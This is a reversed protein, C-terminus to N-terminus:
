NLSHPGGHKIDRVLRQWNEHEGQENEDQLESKNSVVCDNVLPGEANEQRSTDFVVENQIAEPNDLDEETTNELPEELKEKEGSSESSVKELDNLSKDYVCEDHELLVFDDINLAEAM